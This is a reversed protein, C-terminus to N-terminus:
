FYKVDKEIKEWIYGGIIFVLIIILLWFRPFALIALSGGVILSLMLLFYM